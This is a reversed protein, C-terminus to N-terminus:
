FRVISLLYESNYSFSLVKPSGSVPSSLDKVKKPPADITPIVLPTIPAFMTALHVKTPSGFSWPLILGLGRRVM